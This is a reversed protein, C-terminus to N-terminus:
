VGQATRRDSSPDTLQAALALVDARGLLQLSFVPEPVTADQLLWLGDATGYSTLLRETERGGVSVTRALVTVSRAQEALESPSPRLQQPDRVVVPPETSIASSDPDLAGAVWAAERPQSRLALQHFGDDADIDDHLVVDWPLLFAGGSTWGADALQVRWTVLGLTEALAYALVSHPPAWAPIERGEEDDLHGTATLMRYTTGLAVERAQPDLRSVWPQWHRDPETDPDQGCLLMEEDTALGYVVDRRQCTGVLRAWPLTGDDDLLEDLDVPKHLVSGPLLPDAAVSRM